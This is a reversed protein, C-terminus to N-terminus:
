GPQPAFGHRRNRIADAYLPAFVGRLELAGYYSTQTVVIGDVTMVSAIVPARDTSTTLANLVTAAAMGVAAGELGFGGGFFGGGSTVLEDGSVDVDVIDSRRVTLAQHGEPTTLWYEVRDSRIAITTAANVNDFPHDIGSCIVITCRDVVRDGPAEVDMAPSPRAAVVKRQDRRARCSDCIGAPANWAVKEGCGACKAM